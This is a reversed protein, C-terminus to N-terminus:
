HAWMGWPAMQAHGQSFIRSRRDPQLVLLDAGNWEDFRGIFTLTRWAPFAYPNNPDPPYSLSGLTQWPGRGSSSMEWHGNYPDDHVYRVIDDGPLGDVNGILLSGLDGDLKDNLKQWPSRGGWSVSWANGNTSLVDTIGDGDFDGFRLESLPFSSSQLATWGYHGPSIAWWQGDNARWFVDTIRDGNFDGARLQEIPIDYTGPLAQWPGSGGSSIEWTRAYRNVALVDCRGDGDFDGLLVQDITETADKLWTWQMKGGSSYWWSVGTALFLDDKGDGDFDCVGYRGFSDYGTRNEGVTVRTSDNLQVADDFEDHAFVNHNIYAAVRPAGRLKIANDNTYQFANGQIWFQDGANGCNWIHRTLFTDPCNQDGHVDFLHTYENYWKGHVGGGKLVLNQQARYGVGPKGSAAIAHRNFDFVNREIDAYAGASVDVGYGNEGIHQNHHIFNDHIKVADPNFQRDIEDVVYIGQGSWGSIEMNSIEVGICSNVVIGQELNDDGDEPDWHPGQLRFGSIHVNDGFINEGNCRVIFLPRPKSYTFLRPGLTRPTRAPSTQGFAGNLVGIGSVASGVHAAATDAAPAPPTAADMTVLARGLPRAARSLVAGAVPTVPQTGMTVATAAQANGVPPAESSLTVGQSIYIEQLGTMDMEVNAGLLVTTNPTGVAQILLNRWDASGGRIHVTSPLTVAVQALGLRVGNLLLVYAASSMPAAVFSGGTAVPAGNLTLQGPNTCDAPISVSWSVTISEGQQIAIPTATLTATSRLACTPDVPPTDDPPGDPGGDGVTRPLAWAGQLTFLCLAVASMLSRLSM